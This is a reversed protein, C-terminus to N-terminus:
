AELKMKQFAANKATQSVGVSRELASSVEILRRTMSKMIEEISKRLQCIQTVDMSKDVQAGKEAVYLSCFPVIENKLDKILRCLRGRQEGETVVIDQESEHAGETGQIHSGKAVKRPVTGPDVLDGGIYEKSQPLGRCVAVVIGAEDGGNDLIRVSIKGIRLQEARGHQTPAGIANQAENLKAKWERQENLM